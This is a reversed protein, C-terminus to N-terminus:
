DPTNNQARMFQAFEEKGYTREVRYTKRKGHSSLEFTFSVPPHMQFQHDGPHQKGGKVRGYLAFTISRYHM